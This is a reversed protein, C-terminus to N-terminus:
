ILEPPPTWTSPPRSILHASFKPYLIDTSEFSPSAYQFPHFDFASFQLLLGMRAADNNNKQMAALLHDEKTDQLCYFITMGNKKVQWIIDFMKGDLKIEKKGIRPFNLRKEGDNVKIVSISRHLDKNFSQVSREMRIKNLEFLIYYGSSNFLFVLLLFAAASRKLEHNM